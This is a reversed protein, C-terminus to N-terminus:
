RSHDIHALVACNFANLILGLSLAVAFVEPGFWVRVLALAVVGWISVKLDLGRLDSSGNIM